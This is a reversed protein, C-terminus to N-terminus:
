RLAGGLRHQSICISHPASVGSLLGYFTYHGIAVLATVPISVAVIQIPVASWRLSNM